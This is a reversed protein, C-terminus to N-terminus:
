FYQGIGIVFGNKSNAKLDFGYDVRLIANYIKKHILRAGVGAFAKVNKSQTFDNFTGGPTRWTGIDIFGVAQVAFWGRDLCAHRYETNLVVSGTGRDVKNGVGRINLYSDLVFPAFPSEQNTSLGMRMRSAWNGYSGFQRYYKLDNFAILFAPYDHLSYVMETVFRNSFGKISYFSTNTHNSTWILKYLLKDMVTATPSDDVPESLAEYRERFVGGGLSLQDFFTFHYIGEAGLTYNDYTYTVEGQEFYVPELTSWKIINFNIGWSTGKLWDLSLHAAVSHRDYYQYYLYTKHGRGLLNIDSAGILYWYNEEVSGFNIIPLLTFLEECHFSVTWENGNTTVSYSANSLMELNALTQRDKELKASDLPDGAKLEIFTFLYEPKTRRIGTFNIEKLAPTQGWLEHLSLLALM